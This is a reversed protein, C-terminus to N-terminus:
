QHLLASVRLEMTAPGAVAVQLTQPWQQQETSGWLAAAFSVGPTTLNSSFVRGTTTKPTRQSNRKQMEEKTHRSGWYSAPHAKKGEALQCNCCTLTSSTNGKEPCEKHLHGGGCRLCCPPQKCSAWIHGFKQCNHCQTLGNQGKYAEVRIEIHCLSPLRLIEQSKAMRPLTIFFL